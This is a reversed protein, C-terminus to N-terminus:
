PRSKVAARVADIFASQLGYDEPSGSTTWASQQVIVLQEEPVVVLSQGMIGIGQFVGPRVWWQYGYDLGSYSTAIRKTTAEEIWGKPLVPKGNALGGGLMFLGIRGYDRLTASFCIGGTEMGEDSVMWVGDQEMGFPQWIKESLYDSLSKGTARIVVAGLLNSDATSYHYNSGAPHERPQGSMLKFFSPGTGTTFRSFDSAPDAYDETFRVGSTMTLLNRITVGEFSGGKLEPIYRSAPDDLSKIAGDRVAAGVLTSTVSKAISFSTWRDNPGRGHAYRELIIRGKHIVLLGSARSVDQFDEITYPRSKYSFSVDLSSAAVPLPYPRDGAKIVHTPFVTEMAKYYRLQESPGWFNLRGKPPAEARTDARAASTAPAPQGLVPSGALGLAAAAIAAAGTRRLLKSTM